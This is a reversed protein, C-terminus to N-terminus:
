ESRAGSDEAHDHARGLLKVMVIADGGDLHYRRRVDIQEFGARRYLRQAPNDARVELLMRDAGAREAHRCAWNLLAGGWGRGAHSRGVAITMLDADRGTVAVDVYGGLRGGHDLAVRVSRGEAALEAVFTEVSWPDTPFLEREMPVLEALHWWRAPVLRPADQSAAGQLGAATDASNLAAV